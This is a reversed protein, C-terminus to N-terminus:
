YIFVVATVVLGRKSGGDRETREHVLFAVWRHPHPGPLCTSSLLPM